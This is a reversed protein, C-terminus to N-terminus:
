RPHGATTASELEGLNVRSLFSPLPYGLQTPSSINEKDDFEECEDVKM